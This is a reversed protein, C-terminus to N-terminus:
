DEVIMVTARTATLIEQLSEPLLKGLHLLIPIFSMNMAMQLHATHAHNLNSALRRTVSIFWAM